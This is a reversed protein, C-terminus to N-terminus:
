KGGFVAFVFAVYQCNRSQLNIQIRYRFNKEIESTWTVPENIQAHVAFSSVSLLLLILLKKM